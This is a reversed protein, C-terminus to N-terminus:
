ERDFIHVESGIRVEILELNRAYRDWDICWQLSEPVNALDGCQEAWDAAYDAASDWVGRYREELAQPIESEDFYALAAGFAPGYQEIMEAVRAITETSTYRGVEYGQFGEHDCVHWEESSPVKGAGKCTECDESGYCKPCEVMVNPCPSGRLIEAIEEQIGDEDQDCDIWRGHLIGSNYAALCGVWIRPTDTM